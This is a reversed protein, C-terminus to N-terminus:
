EVISVARLVLERDQLTEGKWEWVAAGDELKDFNGGVLKGPLHLRLTFAEDALDNTQDFATFSAELQAEMAYRDDFLATASGLTKRLIARLEGEIAALEAGAHEEADARAWNRQELPTCLLALVERLRPEGLAADIARAAQARIGEAVETPMQAKGYAYEALLAGDLHALASERLAKGSVALVQEFEAPSLGMGEEGARDVKRVTDPPLERKMRSWADFRAYERAGYRREFTYLKKAARKEVKLTNARTLYASRYSDTVPAYSAPLAELAPFEAALEFALQEDKDKPLWTRLAESSTQTRLATLYDPLDAHVVTWEPSSPIPYGEAFDQAQGKASVRVSCSGDPRVTLDEEHELCAPLLCLALIAATTKM